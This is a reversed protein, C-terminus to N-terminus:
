WSNFPAKILESNRYKTEYSVEKTIWLPKIFHEEENQLEIEAVILGKNDGEFIDLEWTHNKYIILYRTKEILPHQCLEDLMAKADETPIPYEFESRSLGTAKGKLTLYAKENSVRIRVTIGKSPIYGQRMVYGKPLTPLLAEDVLFKREIEKAM